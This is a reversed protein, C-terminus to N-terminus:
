SSDDKRHSVEELKEKLRANEERLEKLAMDTSTPPLLAGSRFGSIIWLAGWVLAWLVLVAIISIVVGMVAGEREHSIAYFATGLLAFIPVTMIVGCFIVLREWGGYKNVLDRKDTDNM